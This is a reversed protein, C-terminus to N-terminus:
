QKHWKILQITSAYLIPTMLLWPIQTQLSIEREGSVYLIPNFYQVIPSLPAWSIRKDPSLQDYYLFMEVFINQSLCWILLIFFAQWNWIHFISKNKGSVVWILWLGGLCVTGADGMSNMLWNIHKPIMINLNASRRLDVSDGDIWGYTFWLEWGIACVFFAMIYVSPIWKPLSNKNKLYLLLFVPFLASIYVVCVIRIEEFTM